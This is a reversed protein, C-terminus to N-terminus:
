ARLIDSRERYEDPTIDGEALRRDLIQQPTEPVPAGAPAAHQHASTSRVLWVVLVVLAAVVLVILVAMGWHWGGVDHHDYGDDMRYQAITLLTAM